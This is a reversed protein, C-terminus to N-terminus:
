REPKAALAVSLLFMVAAFGASVILCV